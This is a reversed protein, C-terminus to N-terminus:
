DKIEEEFKIEIVPNKLLSVTRSYVYKKIGDPFTKVYVVDADSIDQPSDYTGLQQIKYVFAPKRTVRSWTSMYSIVIPVMLFSIVADVDEPIDRPSSLTEIQKTVKFEEGLAKELLARQRDSLTGKGILAVKRM